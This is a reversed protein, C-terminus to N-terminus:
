ELARKGFRTVLSGQDTMAEVAAVVRETIDDIGEGQERARLVQEKLELPSSVGEMHEAIADLTGALVEGDPGNIEDADEDYLLEEFAAWTLATLVKGSIESSIADRLDRKWTQATDWMLLQRFEMLDENLFLVPESDGFSLFFPLRAYPRLFPPADAASFKKWVIPIATRGSAFTHTPEDIDFSWPVSEGVVRHAVADITASLVVSLVSRGALESRHLVLNGTLTSNSRGLASSVRSKASSNTLVLSADVDDPIPGDPIPCEVEFVCTRWEPFRYRLDVSRHREDIVDSVDSGDVAVAAIRFYFGDTTPWPLHRTM